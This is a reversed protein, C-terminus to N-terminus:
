TKPLGGVSDTVSCEGSGCYIVGNAVGRKASFWELMLNLAPLYQRNM